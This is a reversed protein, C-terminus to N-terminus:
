SEDEDELQDAAEGAISAIEALMEEPSREEEGGTDEPEEETKMSRMHRSYLISVLAAIVTIVILVIALNGFLPGDDGNSPGPGPTVPETYVIVEITMQREHLGDDVLLTINHPGIDPIHLELDPGIGLQGSINSYWTFNLVHGHITDPDNCSGRLWFTTNPLFRSGNDPAIIMPEDMPDNRNVSIIVLDLTDRLQGSSIEYVVLEFMLTGIDENSPTYTIAGTSANFEVATTNLEIGLEDGEIDIWTVNVTLTDDQLVTFRVPVEDIPQGNVAIFRPGDNVPRVTVLGSVNVQFEGDSVLFTVDGNGNWGATPEISVDGTAADILISINEPKPDVWWTLDDGDPDRIVDIINFWHTEGSDELVSAPVIDALRIPPSNEIVIWALAPESRDIGDFARVQVSWNDGRETESPGVSDTTLDERLEGDVYWSYVYSLGSSDKDVPRRTITVSLTDTTVPRVPEIRVEPATPPNNMVTIANGYFKPVSQLYDFDEVTVQLDHGGVEAGRPPRFTLTWSGNVFGVPDLYASSWTSTGNPRHYVTVALEGPLDYEDTVNVSIECEETRHVVEPLVVLGTVVPAEQVRKSWNLWVDDLYFTNMRASDHFTFMLRIATHEKVRFSDSLDLEHLGSRIGATFLVEWSEADIVSVNGKLGTPLTANFRLTEFHGTNLPDRPTIRQSLYGAMDDRLVSRVIVDTAGVSPLTFTPYTSYGTSGGLFVRSPTHHTTGDYRCTAVLDLWGVGDIDAVEISSAGPTRVKCDPVSAFSGGGNNLYVYSDVSHNQYDDVSNAFVIDPRLDGNVDEVVVDSAGLTALKTPPTEFGGSNMGWYIYSDTAVFGNAFSNAFVLDVRGDGNLDGSSVGTAGETPLFHSPETGCFGTSNQLFVMSEVSTTGGKYNAFVIDVLGNRDLDVVEIAVAGTTSFRVDPTANWGTGSGWFLVSDVFHSDVDREQAFVVDVHFDGNLDGLHVDRAGQTPFLHYPNTQFGVPTGLLVPSESSYNIDSTRYSAVAVDLYGDNNVEELALASCETNSVVNLPPLSTYDSGGDQRFLLSEGLNTTGDGLGAILIEKSATFPTRGTLQGGETGLGVLRDVKAHGYFEERWDDVNMWTVLITDIIPTTSLDDGMMDIEIFIKTDDVSSVDVDTSRIDSMGAIRRLGSDLVTVEIHSGPPTTADVYIIDWRMDLPRKIERTIVRGSSGTLEKPPIGFAISSPSHANLTEDADDTLGTSRGYHIRLRTYKTAVLADDYGDKNIDLVEIDYIPDNIDIVKRNTDSWGARTGPFLHLKPYGTVIHGYMLDTFGDGNVDGVGVCTPYRPSTLRYDPDEDPGGPGGLYVYTKDGVGTNAFVVDLFGDGDLDHVEVDDANGTDFRIDADADPGDEGGFYVRSTYEEAIVIDDYGDGNLDGSDIGRIRLGQLKVAPNTRFAGNGPNLFVYVREYSFNWSIFALDLDGDCDFDGITVGSGGNTTLDTRRSLNWTGSPDGWMIHSSVNYDDDYKSNAVVLDNYGDHNLDATGYGMPNFEGIAEVEKYGTRDSKPYILYLENNGSQWHHNTIITPYKQYDSHEHSYRRQRSQDIELTENVREVSSTQLLKGTSIFDDRWENPRVFCVTWEILMPRNTGNVGMTAQVRISPYELPDIPRLDFERDISLLYGPIPENVYGAQQSTETANLVAVAVTSNGTTDSEVSLWDYLYGKPCTIEKSSVIGQSKGPSIEVHGDVVATDRTIHIKSTDDFGDSWRPSPELWSDTGLPGSPESTSLLGNPISIHLSSAILIMIALATIAGRVSGVGNKRNGM